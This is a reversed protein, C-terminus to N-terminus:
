RRARGRLEGIDLDTLDIKGVLAALKRGASSRKVLQLGEVLTETIGKGTARRAEDLLGVPVNATM